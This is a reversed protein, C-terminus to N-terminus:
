SNIVMEYDKLRYRVEHDHTYHIYIGKNEWGTKYSHHALCLSQLVNRYFAPKGIHQWRFLHDVHEASAIKGQLLCAACLPHTSLHATRMKRWVPLQYMSVANKREDTKEMIDVGGHVLCFSNLRSRINKCGLEGCLSYKPLTPM